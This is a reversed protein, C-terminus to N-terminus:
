HAPVTIAFSALTFTNTATVAQPSSLSGHAYLSAGSIAAWWSGTGNRLITGTTCSNSAVSMGNAISAPAGFVSGAGPAWSGLMYGAAASIAIAYTTPEAECINIATVASNLVTMGSSIVLNEIQATM